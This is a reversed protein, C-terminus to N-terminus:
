KKGINKLDNLFEDDALSKSTKETTTEPEDAVAVGATAEEAKPELDPSTVNVEVSAEETSAQLNGTDYQSSDFSEDGVDEILGLHCKLEHDLEEQTKTIRLAKLDHLGALWEEIKGPEGLPTSDPVFKSKSYDPWKKEGPKIGKILMFDYGTKLDTVDGLGEDGPIDPDGCIGFMIKEYLTVGVSLILPDSDTVTGDEHQVNRQIVNFYYRENIKIKSYLEKLKKSEDSSIGEKESEKWLWRLYSCIKCEGVLKKRSGEPAAERTCHLNRGNVRHLRSKMFFPAKEEGFVGSAAPPLIRLLLTGKEKPMQVYINNSNKNEKSEKHKKTEERLENLDINM